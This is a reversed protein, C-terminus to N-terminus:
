KLVGAKRMVALWRCDTMHERPHAGCAPCTGGAVSGSHELELLLRAMEPAAAALKARESCDAELEERNKFAAITLLSALGGPEDRHVAGVWFGNSDWEEEWVKTM